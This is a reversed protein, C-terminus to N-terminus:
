TAVTRHQSKGGSVQLREEYRAVRLQLLRWRIGFVLVSGCLSYFALLCARIVGEPAELTSAVFAVALAAAVLGACINRNRAARALEDNMEILIADSRAAAPLADLASRGHRVRQSILYAVFSGIAAGVLGTFSLARVEEPQWRVSERM